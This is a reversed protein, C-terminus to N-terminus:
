YRAPLETEYVTTLLSPNINDEYKSLYVEPRMRVIEAPQGPQEGGYTRNLVLSGSAQNAVTVSGNIVLQGSCDGTQSYMPGSTSARSEACTVFKNVAYFNGAIETIPAGAQRGHVLITNAIITLSPVENFSLAGIDYRINGRIEVIDACITQHNNAIGRNLGLHTDNIVRTGNL